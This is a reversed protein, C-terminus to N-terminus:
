PNVRACEKVVVGGGSKSRYVRGRMTVLDGKKYESLTHAKDRPLVCTLYIKGDPSDSLRVNPTLYISMGTEVVVGSYNLTKGLYEAEAKERGNEFEQWFESASFTKQADQSFATRSFILIMIVPLVALILKAREASMNM